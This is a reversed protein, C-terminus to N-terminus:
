RRSESYAKHEVPSRAQEARTVHPLERSLPVRPLEAPAILPARASHHTILSDQHCIPSPQTSLELFRTGAIFSLTLTQSELKTIFHDFKLDSCIFCLM